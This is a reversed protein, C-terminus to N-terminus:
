AEKEGVSSTTEAAVTESRKAAAATTGGGAAKSSGPKKLKKREEQQREIEEDAEKMSTEMADTFDATAKKVSGALSGLEKGMGELKKPGWILLAVGAIVAVEPVGLGFVM